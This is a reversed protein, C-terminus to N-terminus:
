ATKPTDRKSRFFTQLLTRAEEACVGETITARHNLRPDSLVQGLSVCGGFKEDRVGWVVREVRAHSLAGACMFCPEVTTYVTAGVLRLDGTARVAAQIALVEAHATPDKHSRTLNHARAIVEGDQVIVAGIPVEDLAEARRAEELALAMYGEDISVAACPQLVLGQFVGTGFEREAETQLAVEPSLPEESKTREPRFGIRGSTYQYV